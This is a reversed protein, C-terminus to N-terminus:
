QQPGPPRRSWPRTVMLVVTASIAELPKPTEFNCSALFNQTIHSDDSFFYAYKQSVIRYIYYGLHCDPNFYILRVQSLHIVKQACLLCFHQSRKIM